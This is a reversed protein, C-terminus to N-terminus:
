NTMGSENLKNIYDTYWRYRSAPCSVMNMPVVVVYYQSKHDASYITTISYACNAKMRKNIKSGLKLRTLFGIERFSPAQFPNPVCYWKEFNKTKGLLELERPGLLSIQMTMRKLASIECYKPSHRILVLSAPLFIRM